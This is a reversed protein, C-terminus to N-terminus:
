EAKITNVAKVWNTDPLDPSVLQFGDASTALIVKNDIKDKTLVVQSGNAGTVTIQKYDKIGAAVLLDPLAIGSYSTTGVKVVSTPIKSLVAQDMKQITGDPKNINLSVDPGVPYATPVYNIAPYPYGTTSVTATPNNGTQVNPINVSSKTPTATQAGCASLLVGISVFLVMLSLLKRM